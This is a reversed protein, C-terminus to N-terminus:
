RYGFSWLVRVLARLRVPLKGSVRFELGAACVGSVGWLGSVTFEGLGPVCRELRRQLIWSADSKPGRSM